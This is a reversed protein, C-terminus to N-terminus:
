FKRDIRSRLFRAPMVHLFFIELVCNLYRNLASTHSFCGATMCKPVAEGCVQKLSARVDSVNLFKKPVFVNGRRHNVRM